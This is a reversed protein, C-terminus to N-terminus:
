CMSDSNKICINWHQFLAYAAQLKRILLLYGYSESLGKIILQEDNGAEVNAM